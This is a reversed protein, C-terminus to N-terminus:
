AIEELLVIIAQTWLSQTQIMVTIKIFSEDVRYNRTNGVRQQNFFISKYLVSSQAKVSKKKQKM